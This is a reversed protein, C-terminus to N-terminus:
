EYTYEWTLVKGDAEVLLSFPCPWDEFEYGFKQRLLDIILESDAQAIVFSEDYQNIRTYYETVAEIWDAYAQTSTPLYIVALEEGDAYFTIHNNLM